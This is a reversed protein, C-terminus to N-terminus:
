AQPDEILQFVKNAGLGQELHTAISQAIIEASDGDGYINNRLEVIAQFDPTQAKVLAASIDASNGGVNIVNPSQERGKQRDGVNLVALGLSAAELIGSSSNGIMVSAAEMASYYGAAGMHGIFHVQPRDAAYESIQTNLARGATDANAATFVAPLGSQDIATFIAEVELQTAPLDLTVPHYTILIFPGQEPLCFRAALETRNLRPIKMISDLAPAGSVIVRDDPEGMQMLRRAALDTTCFHLHSIKTLAHRLVNDIAGETEEGGHLHAIPLGFPVAALAAAFMEFRDGLAIILDAQETALIDAIGATARGMSRGIADPSDAPELCEFAGAVPWESRRVEDITHGFEHSMHMGTAILAPELNPHRGMADLVPTIIGFDARSTTLVLIKFPRAM